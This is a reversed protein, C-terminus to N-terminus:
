VKVASIRCNVECLEERSFSTFDPHFDLLAADSLKVREGVAYREVRLGKEEFLSKWQVPLLRNQYFKRGAIAEWESASYVRFSFPTFGDVSSFSRHDITIITHYATGGKKLVRAIESVAQGPDEVHELIAFSIVLDFSEAPFPMSCVDVPHRFDIKETDLYFRDGRSQFLADFRSLSCDIDQGPAAEEPILDRIRRYEALRPTIDPYDIAFAFKDISSVHDVLLASLLSEMGLFGGPGVHLCRGTENWRSLSTLESKLIRFNELYGSPYRGVRLVDSQEYGLEMLQHSITQSGSVSTVIIRDFHFEGLRGPPIINHGQLTRGWLSADNDAIALVRANPRYTGLWQLLEESGKGAGFLLLSEEGVGEVLDPDIWRYNM